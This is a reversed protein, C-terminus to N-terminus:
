NAPILEYDCYHFIPASINEKFGPKQKKFNYLSNSSFFHMLISYAIHSSHRNYSFCYLKSKGM